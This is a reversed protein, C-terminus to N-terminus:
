TYCAFILHMIEVVKFSKRKSVTESTLAKTKSMENMEDIYAAYKSTGSGPWRRKECKIRIGRRGM